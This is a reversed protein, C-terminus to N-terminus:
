RRTATGEQAECPTIEIAGEAAWRKEARIEWIHADDELLCDCLSKILNDIDPKQQHPAGLMARRKKGSWSAPIPLCFTVALRDGPWWGAQKARIGLETCFARYRVVPPSPHWRDRQTQRPAAMPTVELRIIDDSNTM